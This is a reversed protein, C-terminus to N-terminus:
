LIQELVEGPLAKGGTLREVIAGGQRRGLRSLSLATVHGHGTWPPVFEHRFTVVALVPLHQVRDVIRGLFEIMTPDPSAVGEYIALTPRRAAVRALQDFLVQFTKEKRQQPSLTLAPYRGATPIALLDALIPVAERTDDTARGLLTELKDLQQEP